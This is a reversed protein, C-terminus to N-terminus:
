RARQERLPAAAGTYPTGPRRAGAAHRTRRCSAPTSPSKGTSNTSRRAVVQVRAVLRALTGSRSWRWFRNYVAKWPGYREPLDRWAVSTKAEFLMGNIVQCDDGRPRGKAGSTPLLPEIAQWHEDTM